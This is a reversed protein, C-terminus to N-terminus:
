PWQTKPVIPCHLHKLEQLGERMALGCVIPPSFLFSHKFGTIARRMGRDGVVRGIGISSLRPTQQPTSHPVIFDMCPLRTRRFGDEGKTCSSPPLSETRKHPM